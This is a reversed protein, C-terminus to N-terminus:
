TTRGRFCFRLAERAFRVVQGIDIKSTGDRREPFFYPTEEVRLGAREALLHLESAFFFGEARLSDYRVHEFVDRRLLHFTCTLDRIKTRFLAKLSFMALLSVWKKHSTFGGEGVYRSGILIHCDRERAEDLLTLVDRPDEQFDADLECMYGYDQKCFYEYATVAAKGRGPSENRVLLTVREIDGFKARVVDATGDPSQDDVVLIDFEADFGLLTELMLEINTAENYTPIVVLLESTESM